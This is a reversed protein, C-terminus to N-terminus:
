QALVSLQLSIIVVLLAFWLLWSLSFTYISKLSLSFNNFNKQLFLFHPPIENEM